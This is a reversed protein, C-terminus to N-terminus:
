AELPHDPPPGAIWNVELALKRRSMRLQRRAIECAAAAATGAVLWVGMGPKDHRSTLEEGVGQLQRLFHRMGQELAAVDVTPLVSLAGLGQPLPLSPSADATASEAAGARPLIYSLGTAPPAAPVTADPVPLSGEPDRSALIGNRSAGTAQADVRFASVGLLTDLRPTPPNTLRQAISASAPDASALTSAHNIDPSQQQASLSPSSGRAVAQLLAPDVSETATAAEEQVFYVVGAGPGPARFRLEVIGQTITMDFSGGFHEVPGAGKVFGMLAGGPPPMDFGAPLGHGGFASVSEPRGAVAFFSGAPAPMPSYSSITVPAAADRMVPFLHSSFNSSNLLDRSELEELRPTYM